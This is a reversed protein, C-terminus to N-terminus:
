NKSDGTEHNRTRNRHNTAINFMEGRTVLKAEEEARHKVEVMGQAMTKESVVVRLPIGILDADAFKQGATVERDDYLVGIGEGQLHSELAQAEQRVANGSGLALIHVDFPAVEGPWVIGDKDHNVEVITAMIRTTGLGYCGMIVPHRKGNEDLFYAGLKESFRTGLHFIHGAEVTKYEKVKEGCEPCNKKSTEAIEKNAAWACHDCILTIDEGAESKVMFERTVDKTFEGGSAQVPFAELGCRKFIKLYARTVEEYFRDFDERTAHFSYLDKMIFEKGRLLGAKPRAEDRFKTQIQYLAVPLDRFSSIRAGAIVTVVEEHTPGLGFWHGSKDEFQFMEGKYAEWRGTKEWVAKPHLAPMTLEQAGIANLEQRIISLIRQHARLGLPLLTYIGAALQDIFDGRLMLKHSAMVADKPTEKRTKAFFSSQKM